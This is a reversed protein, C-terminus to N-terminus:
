EAAPTSPTTAEVVARPTIVQKGRYMGGEEIHHRLVLEGTTPSEQYTGSAVRDHSRRMGRRSKTIKSKPVAM